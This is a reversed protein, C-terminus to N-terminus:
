YFWGADTAKYVGRIQHNKRTEVHGDAFAANVTLGSMRGGFVHGSSKKPYGLTALNNAETINIDAPNVSNPTGYGAFCADSIFPVHAAAKDTTKSPWGYNAPDTNPQTGATSFLPPSKSVGGFPSTTIRVRQVWLNHNMIVFGNYYSSLFANLDDLSSLRNPPTMSAARAYQAATEATRAPCFWMPATLGYKGVEPVFNTSVDWPNGSGGGALSYTGPLEDKFDGAYMNAMVGWQKFNSTCNVVQARFKAKALAPLLMAALIAIIAIVVLLEILTFARSWSRNIGSANM